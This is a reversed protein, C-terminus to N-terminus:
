KKDEFVECEVKKLQVSGDKEEYIWNFTGAYVDYGEKRLYDRIAYAIDDKTLVATKRIEM